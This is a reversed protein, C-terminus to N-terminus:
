GDRGRKFVHGRRRKMTITEKKRERECVCVNCECMYIYLYLRNLKNLTAKKYIAEPSVSSIIYSILPNM